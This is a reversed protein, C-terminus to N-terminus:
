YVRPTVEQCNGTDSLTCYDSSSNVNSYWASERELSTTSHLWCGSDAEITSEPAYAIGLFLADSAPNSLNDSPGEQIMHHPVLSSHDDDRVPITETLTDIQLTEETKFLDAGSGPTVVWSRFDGECDAYLSQFYPAPTPIFTSKKLRVITIYCLILLVPVLVCLIATFTNTPFEGVKQTPDTRWRVETAWESWQGQYQQQNPISRVNVIYETDPEFNENNVSINTSHCVEVVKDQHGSRYFCLQYKLNDSLLNGFQLYKEYGSMWTVRHQSSMRNVTLNFPANPKIHKVPMYEKDLLTASVHGNSRNHYLTIKFRSTDFFFDSEEDPYSYYGDTTKLKGGDFVTGFSLDEIRLWYSSQDTHAVEPLISLSCNITFLYDSVCDLSYEHGPLTWMFYLQILVSIVCHHLSTAADRLLFFHGTM